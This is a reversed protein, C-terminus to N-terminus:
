KTQNSQTLSQKFEDFDLSTFQNKHIHSFDYMATDKGFEKGANFYLENVSEAAKLDSQLQKNVDKL